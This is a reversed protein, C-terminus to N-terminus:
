LSLPLIMLLVSFMNELLIKFFFDNIFHQICCPLEQPGFPIILYEYHGYVCTFTTKYEHGEKIRILNFASRLDMKSFIKGKRFNEFMYNILPLPFSDSLITKGNLRGSDVALRLEETRKLYSFSQTV